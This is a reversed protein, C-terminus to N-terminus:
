RTAAAGRAALAVDLRMGAEADGMQISV